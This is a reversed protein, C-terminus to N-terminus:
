FFPLWLCGAILLLITTIYREQCPYFIKSQLCSLLYFLVIVRTIYHLIEPKGVELSLM